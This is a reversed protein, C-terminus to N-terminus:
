QCSTASLSLSDFFFSTENSADNTTSLRLRVTEGAHPTSFAFSFATWATTRQSNDLALAQQIPAGSPQVLEVKGRDHVGAVEGSRVEYYGTLALTLTGAPVVVDQSLTDNASAGAIGGMWATNPSSQVLAADATIIPYSPNIPTEIWGMGTPTMDFAPNALLNRTMSTCGSTADVTTPADRSADHAIGADPNERSPVATACGTTWGVATACGILLRFDVMAALM